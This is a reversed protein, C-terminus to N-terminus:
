GAFADAVDSEKISAKELKALQDAVQNCERALTTANEILESKETADSNDSSLMKERADKIKAELESKESLLVDREKQEAERAIM